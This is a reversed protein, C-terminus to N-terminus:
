SQGAQGASALHRILDGDGMVVIRNHSLIRKADQKDLMGAIALRVRICERALNAATTGLSDSLQNLRALDEASVKLSFTRMNKSAQKKPRPM